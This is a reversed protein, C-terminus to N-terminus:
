YYIYQHWGKDNKERIAVFRDIYINNKNNKKYFNAKSENLTNMFRLQTEELPDTYHSDYYDFKVYILNKKYRRVEILKTGNSQFNIKEIDKLLKSWEEPSHNHIIKENEYNSSLPYILLEYM